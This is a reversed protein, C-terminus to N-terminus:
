DTSLETKLEGRLGYKRPHTNGVVVVHKNKILRNLQTSITTIPKKLTESLQAMTQPQLRLENLVQKQFPSVKM